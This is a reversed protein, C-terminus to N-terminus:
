SCPCHATTRLVSAECEKCYTSGGKGDGVVEMGTAMRSRVMKLISQTSIHGLHAHWVDLSATAMTTRAVLVTNANRDGLSKSIFTSELGAVICPLQYLSGSAKM